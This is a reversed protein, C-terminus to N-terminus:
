GNGAYEGFIEKRKQEAFKCAEEFQDVKFKWLNRQGDKMIQVWYENCKPIYSVNRVGTSSNSNAGKRNASNNGAQVIRLNERRNDLTDHNRHDVDVSRDYRDIGLIYKHLRILHYKPKGNKDVGNRKNMSAYYQQNSWNYRAFVKGDLELIKDLDCLSFKIDFNQGSYSECHFVVYDDIINYKNIGRKTIRKRIKEGELIRM